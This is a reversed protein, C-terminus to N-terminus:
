EPSGASTPVRLHEWAGLPDDAPAVGSITVPTLLGVFDDGVRILAAEQGRPVITVPEHRHAIKKYDALFGAGFRYASAHEERIPADLRILHSLAPFQGETVLPYTLSVAHAGFGHGGVPGTAHVELETGHARLELHVDDRRKAPTRTTKDLHQVADLPILADFGEDVTVDESDAVTMALRYRDTAEAYLRGDLEYIRVSRLVHFTKDTSAFPAVRGVLRHWDTLTLNATKTLAAVTATTM